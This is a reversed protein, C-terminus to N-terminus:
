FIYFLGIIPLSSQKDSPDVWNMPHVCTQHTQRVNNLRVLLFGLMALNMKVLSAINHQFLCDDRPVESRCSGLLKGHRTQRPTTQRPFCTPTQRTQRATCHTRTSRAYPFSLGRSNFKAPMQPADILAWKCNQFRGHDIHVFVCIKNKPNHINSVTMLEHKRRM